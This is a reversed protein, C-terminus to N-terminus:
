SLDCSLGVVLAGVCFVFPGEGHFGNGGDGNGGKTEGEHGGTAGVGSLTGVVAMAGAAVAMVSRAVPVAGVSVGIVCLRAIAMLAVVMAVTVGGVAVALGVLGGVRRHVGVSM